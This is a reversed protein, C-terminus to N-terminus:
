MAAEVPDDAAPWCLLVDPTEDDSDDAVSYVMTAAGDKSRVPNESHRVTKRVHLTSPARHINTIVANHIHLNKFHIHWYRSTESVQLSGEFNLRSHITTTRPRGVLLRGDYCVHNAM